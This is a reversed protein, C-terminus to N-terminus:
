ASNRAANIIGFMCRIILKRYRTEDEPSLNDSTRLHMLAFQQIAILPRVIRERLKVSDRINPNNGLLENLGSIELTRKKSLQYEAFMKKWFDGFDADKALYTTANFNSKTMSMMSNGLLTRFFLSNKYLKKLQGGKGAETLRTIASGVGYFGPINQKM